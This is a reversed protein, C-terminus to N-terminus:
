FTGLITSCSDRELEKWLDLARIALNTYLPNRYSLRFIRSTGHSSGQVHGEDYQELLLVKYNRKILQWACAAGMIGGGVVIHDYQHAM